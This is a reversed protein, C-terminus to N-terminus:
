EITVHNDPKKLIYYRNLTHSQALIHKLIDLSLSLFIHLKSFARTSFLSLEALFLFPNTSPNDDNESEQFKAYVSFGVRLDRRYNKM